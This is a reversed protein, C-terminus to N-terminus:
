SVLFFLSCPLSFLHNRYDLLLLVSPRTTLVNLYHLNMKTRTHTHTLSLSLLDEM